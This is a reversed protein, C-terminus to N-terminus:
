LGRTDLDLKMALMATKADGFTLREEAIGEMARWYEEWPASSDEWDVVKGSVKITIKCMERTKPLDESIQRALVHAAIRHYLPVASSNVTFTVSKLTRLCSLLPDLWAWNYVQFSSEATEARM